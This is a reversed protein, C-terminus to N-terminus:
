DLLKGVKTCGSDCCFMAVDQGSVCLDVRCVRIRNQIDM